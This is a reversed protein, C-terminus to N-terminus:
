TAIPMVSTETSKEDVFCFPCFIAPMTPSIKSATAIWKMGSRIVCAIFPETSRDDKLASFMASWAWCVADCYAADPESAEPWPEVVNDPM